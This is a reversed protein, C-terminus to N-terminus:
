GRLRADYKRMEASMERRIAVRLMIDCRCRMSVAGIMGSKCQDTAGGMSPAFGTNKSLGPAIVGLEDCRM